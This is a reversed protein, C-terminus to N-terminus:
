RMEDRGDHKKMFEGKEKGEKNKRDGSRKENERREERRGV